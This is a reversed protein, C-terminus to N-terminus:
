DPVSFITRTVESEGNAIQLAWKALLFAGKFIETAQTRSYDIGVSCGGSTPSTLALKKPYLPTAYDSRRIV